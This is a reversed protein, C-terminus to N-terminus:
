LPRGVSIDGELRHLPLTACFGKISMSTPLITRPDGHHTAMRSCPWRVRAMEHRGTNLDDWSFRGIGADGSMRDFGKSEGAHMGDEVEIGAMGLGGNGHSVVCM